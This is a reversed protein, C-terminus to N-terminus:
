GVKMVHETVQKFIAGKEHEWADLATVINM